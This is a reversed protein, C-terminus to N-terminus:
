VLRLFSDRTSVRGGRNLKGLCVGVVHVANAPDFSPIEACFCKFLSLFSQLLSSYFLFVVVKIRQCVVLSAHGHCTAQLESGKLKVISDAEFPRLQKNTCTLLLLKLDEKELYGVGSEDTELLSNLM